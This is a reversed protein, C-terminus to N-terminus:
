PGAFTGTFTGPADSTGTWTGDTLSRGDPSVTATYRAKELAGTVAQGTLTLQSSRSDYVGTFVENGADQGNKKWQFTGAYGTATRRLTCDASWRAGAAGIGSINWRGEEPGSATLGGDPNTLPSADPSSPPSSADTGGGQPGTTSESGGCAAAALVLFLFACRVKRAVAPQVM